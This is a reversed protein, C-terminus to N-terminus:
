NMRGEAWDRDIIIPITNMKIKSLYNKAALSFKELSALNKEQMDRLYSDMM